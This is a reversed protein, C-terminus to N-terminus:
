RRERAQELIPGNPDIRFSGCPVKRRKALKRRNKGDVNAPPTAFRSSFLKRIVNM